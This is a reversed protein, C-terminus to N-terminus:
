PRLSMFGVGGGLVALVCALVFGYMKNTEEWKKRGALTSYAMQDDKMGYTFVTPLPDLPPKYPNALEVKKVTLALSAGPQVNAFFAQRNFSEIYGDSPVRFRAPHEEIYFELYKGQKGAYHEEASKLTASLTDYDAEVLPKRTLAWYVTGGSSALLLAAMILLRTSNQM